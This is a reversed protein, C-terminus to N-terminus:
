GNELQSQWVPLGTIFHRQFVIYVRECEKVLMGNRSTMTVALTAIYFCIKVGFGGVFM